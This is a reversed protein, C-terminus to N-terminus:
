DKSVEVRGATSRARTAPDYMAECLIAPLVFEGLYSAQLRLPIERVAAAPLDFYTLVRDDRIDQYNLGSSTENPSGSLLRENYIEWGSPIIHTLAVDSYYQGGSINSIRVIAYFDRGQPLRSVDIPNGQLDTYRVDLRINEAIAPLTDNLPRTKSALSVFLVGEDGNSVTLEGREPKLPIQEQLLAQKSNVKNARAGNLSWTFKLKGSTKAALQGLAIMAHATTQTDFQSEQSLKRSLKRAQAFAEETKNMLVLTELFMAEDRTASGYSPNNSSYPEVTTTLNFLLGSAADAKGCLAYAAALRWRAQLSLKKEEKLRNMAGMDPEGALALTYLRYAQLLDSQDYAYRKNSGNAKRWQRAAKRQYSIWKAIVAKSVQYGRDRALILFSGAYSSAWDNIYSEGPWYIFGGNASQRGYLQSIAEMINTKSREAELKDLEKFDPLFLLPLARSTLQETCYHSYNYLFDFRRSIDVAPIRSMEAKVWNGEFSADLQYPFSASQGKELLKSQFSIVPPNPNRIEIEISEKSTHNGSTATILIKEKGTQAGTQMPFYLLKDGVDSFSLTQTSSGEPRLKGTTEIKVRVEKLKGEMAFVNVPLSIREQTSLVRPLSSLLMLPTRVPVTKDAKGYSGNQGAVVMVRLSGVYSPLRLKHKKEEGAKLVIPGLYLVVPKFRQVQSPQANLEEDGGVSFLSGFKGAYAGMVNDFLDWTRIGLAERAYFEKWPDPTKYNTLDLLGEDVIALTYTMAKANKEKIRIEFDSEPKLVDPMSILPSLTSEKNSVFVPMVGYMRIPLDTTAAHAQLLSIHVYMNPAMKDSVKFSYKTDAGPTLVIWERHLVETGNEFALLARGGSATQPITVTAEEGVNYSSKDLSFALMKIGTPDQRNSRGRWSPWDVWVVDGTAHGSENDKVYVLYRGWDPYNIRFKIRAKGNVAQLKGSAVITANTNNIYADFSENEREWWWSWGIRYIKYELKSRNVPRGESNLSVVDFGYDEDTVFYQEDQKRNVNLGVYSSYPSFPLSQSFISADGGPEFVRCVLRANLMGPASLASPVRMSFSADGNADLNANFVESTSSEFQTAPNNFKFKEYGKFQTNTKSLLLEARAELNRATAGTLWQAHIGVPVSGHSAEIRTPLDLKIKLRNPKISEIRLSKHFSAGGVKVYANWLGTPDNPKTPLHFVYFGNTSNTVVVKKYFQGQPNYLELSVPHKEPLQQERDEIMFAVHLTDGPRWVGREGYIYGKLGKKLEVGGVDFRSLMNEEGDVLRLYAKQDGSEAVLVFPKSKLKLLVFGDKDTFSSGLAQLQYNYATVKAGEVPQTDTLNSVSAWITNNSNSKAIIGFNSVLVNTSAKRNSQMYYTPHCPNDTESWDYEDWDIDLDYGNYYYSDPSDWYTDEETDNLLPTLDNANALVEERSTEDSCDYAAYAQKFSLEIRYIAGPQQKVLNTIDLSYNKWESLEKDANANLRLTKKCILRGARRLGNSSETDLKNEQLFMLVNSEFIRIIKLDVAYLSITRFPLIVNGSTPMISGSTLLEVQPKRTEMPLDLQIDEGLMRGSQSKLGGHITGRLNSQSSPNFYIMAQNGQQQISYESINSLTIMSRLDQEVSLLDTFVLRLGYDPATIIKSEHLRFSGSAPIEVEINEKRDINAPKGDVTISLKKDTESRIIGKISFRFVSAEEEGEIQVEIKQKDLRASLMQGATALTLAENCSLEGSLVISNDSRIEIPDTTLHFRKEEVRFSFEFKRLKKGVEAIKGLAFSAEYTSGSELEQAEPTFEITRSNVWRTTGRLKPSFSFLKETTKENTKEAPFDEALEVRISAHSSIMGGTYASIYPAFNISPDQQEKKCSHLTLGILILGLSLKSLSFFRKM